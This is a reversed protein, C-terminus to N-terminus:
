QNTMTSFLYIYSPLLQLVYILVSAIIGIVAGGASVGGMEHLTRRYTPMDSCMERARMVDKKIKKLYLRDAAFVMFLSIGLNMFSLIYSLAIKTRDNESPVTNSYKENLKDVNAQFEELTIENNILEVYMVSMEDYILKSQDTLSCIGSLIALVILAAAYLLGEKYMKRYLYWIPGFLLACISVSIKRGFREMTAFKRIYTGSKKEGIYDVYESAPIGEILIDPRLGGFRQYYGFAEEQSVPGNHFFPGNYFNNDGQTNEDAANDTQEFSEPQRNDQPPVTNESLPKRCKMCFADNGYNLAKCHPCVVANEGNKFRLNTEIPEEAKPAEEKKRLSEPYVWSFGENHSDTNACQGNKTWCERHHPSGCLPCVVVDDTETFVNNCSVCSCGTFKM